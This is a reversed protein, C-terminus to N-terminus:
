RSQADARPPERAARTPGPRRSRRVPAAARAPQRRGAKAHEIGLFVNELVSRHPVLTPEQAIITVGDALAERPSHYDVRRGDVWLEGADARYVGAVIKGLTSKGAGNEGVLGHISGREVVLDVDELAHVGGFRKGVGRLEVHPETMEAASATAASM